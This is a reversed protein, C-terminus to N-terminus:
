GGAAKRINDRTLPLGERLVDLQALNGARRALDEVLSRTADAMQPTVKLGSQRFREVLTVLATEKAKAYRAQYAPSSTDVRRSPPPAGPVTELDPREQTECPVDSRLPSRKAPKPPNVGLIPRDTLLVSGDGFPTGFQAANLAVRFWQGNADFTRSEGALGVLPKPQEQYVPGVAPFVPDQIKDTSWPLIV